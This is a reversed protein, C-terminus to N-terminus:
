VGAKKLASDVFAKARPIDGEDLHEIILPMNPHREALLELYLPYNLAGLGAAPLEVGGAGRFTHSEDADIDAHKESTDDARKCDKAHAIRMYPALEAFIERLTEDM